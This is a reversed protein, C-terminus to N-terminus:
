RAYEGPQHPCEVKRVENMLRRDPTCFQIVEPFSFRKKMPAKCPGAFVFATFDVCCIRVNKLPNRRNVITLKVCRRGPDKNCRVPSHVPEQGAIIRKGRNSAAAQRLQAIDSISRKSALVGFRISRKFEFHNHPHPKGIVPTPAATKGPRKGRRGTLRSVISTDGKM